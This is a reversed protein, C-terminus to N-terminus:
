GGSFIRLSFTSPEVGKVPVLYIFSLGSSKLYRAKKKEPDHM